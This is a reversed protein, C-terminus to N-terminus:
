TEEKEALEIRSPHSTALPVHEGRHPGRTVLRSCPVEPAAHCHPCQVRLARGAQRQSPKRDWRLKDALASMIRQVRADTAKEAEPLGLAEGPTRDQRSRRIIATIHGPMLYETSESHHTHIAELAEHFGWRNREAQEWWATIGANSLKRNDYAMAAAYLQKIENETM